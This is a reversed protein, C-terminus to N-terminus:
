VNGGGKEEFVQLITKVLREKDLKMEYADIGASLGLERDREFGLSTCAVVPLNKLTSSSRVKKTLEIGNLRPMNIDTLLMDYKTDSNLMNWAKEGNEAFDVECGAGELYKITVHRFFATDEALLIRKGNLLKGSTTHKFHEPEASEFLSYIDVFISLKGDIISSGLMGLGSVSETNLKSDTNAVDLVESAIIGLKHKVLKPIIVYMIEPDTEPKSVPLFDHLRLVRLSKGQYQIFEKKDVCEIDTAPVKDIRSVLDINMVFNEETGNKFMLLRQSEVEQKKADLNEQALNEQEVDTFKMEMYNAIGTPDLIMAVKGDGLITAGGYCKCKKLFSSLPKVVIEENNLLEDVVLGFRHIGVKLVLIHMASRTNKRREKGSRKALLDSPVATSAESASEESENEIEAFMSKFISKLPKQRKDVIRNRNDEILEGSKPNKIRNQMGLVDSLRILPLLKGRQRIVASDGLVEVRKAVDEARIRVIDDLSSQPVAFQRGRVEVLLSSIIAMTLPLKLLVVTGRGVSSDLQITGGLKEINTKVVDMGVGRGSVGTVKAAMSFGPAFILEQAKKDSMLGAEEQTIVNKEVAKGKVADPNIGRGDDAIKIIVQDGEHYAAVEVKGEPLKGAKEREDPIEIAHDLCNRLLHTLPDSLAEIISKDLEVDEGSTELKVQKNLSRTLDRVIRPLKSFVAGVPQLRTAMIKEQMDSTLFDVQQVVSKISQVESLPSSLLGFFRDEVRKFEKEVLAEFEGNLSAGLANAGDIVSKSSQATLDGIKEQLASGGMIVSARQNMQSVIQNRTLVLEGALNMLSNLLDLKVRLSEVIAVSKGKENGSVPANLAPEKAGALVESAEVQASPKEEKKEPEKTEPAETEEKESIKDKETPAAGSGTRFVELSELHKAISIGESEAYNDILETLKDSGALLADVVDPTATLDGDRVRSLVTEMVHALNTINMFGLFSFGGKISHMARFVRNVLDPSVDAGKEELLLLDPEINSLHEKSEQVLEGVLEADDELGLKM